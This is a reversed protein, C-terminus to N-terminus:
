VRNVGVHLFPLSFFFFFLFSMFLFVLVDDWWRERFGARRPWFCKSWGVKDNIITEEGMAQIANSIKTGLDTSVFLWIMRSCEIRVVGEDASRPGASSTEGRIRLSCFPLSSSPRLRPPFRFSRGALVM